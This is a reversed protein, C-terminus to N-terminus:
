CWWWLWRSYKYVLFSAARCRRWCCAARLAFFTAGCRRRQETRRACTERAVLRHRSGNHHAAVEAIVVQTLVVNVSVREGVRSEDHYAITMLIIIIIIVTITDIYICTQVISQWTWNNQLIIEQKCSCLDVANRKHHFVHRRRDGCDDFGFWASFTSASWSQM